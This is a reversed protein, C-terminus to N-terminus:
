YRCITMGLLQNVSMLSLLSPLYPTSNVNQDVTQKVLSDWPFSRLIFRVAYLVQKAHTFGVKIRSVSNLECWM